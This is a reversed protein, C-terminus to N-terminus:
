KYFLNNNYMTNIKHIIFVLPSAFIRQLGDLDNIRRYFITRDLGLTGGKLSQWLCKTLRKNTSSVM